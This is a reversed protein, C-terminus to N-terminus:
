FAVYPTQSGGLPTRDYGFYVTKGYFFPMGLDIVGNMFPGALDNFAFNGSQFLTDANTIPMVITTSTTSGSFSSVTVNRSTPSPPCYFDPADTCTTLSADNFFLGNSGSDFFAAGSGGGTFVTSNVNGAQDTTLKKASAPQVNNSQSGIGFTLTGSISRSGSSGVAPMTLIVGNNDTVFAAVPNTVQNALALTTESCASSTCGYYTGNNVTSVCPAGCDYPSVGIGLIGNVGLASVTNEAGGPTQSICSSPPAVAEDGLISIPIGSATEGGIKVDAKRVTGWTYGDAFVTCEAIGNGSGDTEVSLHPLVQSAVSGVLRLGYSMTDVQINDITQCTATGPACVTVSVVPLNAVRELGSSVTVPVQNAVVPIAPGNTGGSGGSSGATSATSSDGGGGGGCGAVVAVAIVIGFAGLVRLFANKM